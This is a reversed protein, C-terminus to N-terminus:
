LVIYYLACSLVADDRRKRVRRGGNNLIKDINDKGGVNNMNNVNEM